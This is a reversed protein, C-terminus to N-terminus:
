SAKHNEPIVVGVFTLNKGVKMTTNSAAKNTVLLGPAVFVRLLLFTEGKSRRSEVVVLDGTKRAGITDPTQDVLITRGEAYGGESCVDTLVKYYRLGRQSLASAHPAGEHPEVDNTSGAMAALDVLDIPEVGFTKSLAMIYKLTLERESRELKGVQAATIKLKGLVELQEALDDQTWGRDERLHAILNPEYM